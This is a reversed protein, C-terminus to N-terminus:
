DRQSPAAFVRDGLKERPRIELLEAESIVRGDWLVKVKTAHRAGNKLPKYGDFVVEEEIKKKGALVDVIVTKKMALLGTKKDFYLLVDRRGKSTVKVGVVEKGPVKAPAAPTLVFDKGNALPVLTAVWNAYMREKEEALEEKSLERVRGNLKLWGKNGDVVLDRSFDKGEVRVSVAVRDAGQRAGKLTYSLAGGLRYTGKGEWTAAPYKAVLEKGGVAKLANDIVPRLDKQANAREPASLLITLVFLARIHRM